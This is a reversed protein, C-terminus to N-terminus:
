KPEMSMCARDKEYRGMKDPTFMCDGNRNEKILSGPHHYEAQWYSCNGCIRKLPIANCLKDPWNLKKKLKNGMSAARKSDGVTKGHTLVNQTGDQSIGLIVVISYGLDERIKKAKKIDTM